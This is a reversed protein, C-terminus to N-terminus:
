AVYGIVEYRGTPMRYWTFIARGVIDGNENHIDVNKRGEDYPFDALDDSDLCLNYTQLEYDFANVAHGKTPYYRGCDAGTSRSCFDNRVPHNVPIRDLTM